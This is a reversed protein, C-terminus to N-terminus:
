QSCWSYNASKEVSCENNLCLVKRCGNDLPGSRADTCRGIEPMHFKNLSDTSHCYIAPVCDSDNECYKSNIIYPLQRYNSAMYILAISFIVLTLVMWKKRIGKIIM